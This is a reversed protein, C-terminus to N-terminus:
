LYMTTTANVSSCTSFLQNFLNAERLFISIHDMMTVLNQEEWDRCPSLIASNMVSSSFICSQMELM